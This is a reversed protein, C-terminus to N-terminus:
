DLRLMGSKGITHQVSIRRIQKVVGKGSKVFAGGTCCCNNTSQLVNQKAACIWPASAGSVLLGKLLTTEATLVFCYQETAFLPHCHPIVGASSFRRHSLASKDTDCFESVVDGLL